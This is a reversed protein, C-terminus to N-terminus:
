SAAQEEREGPGAPEGDPEPEAMKSRRAIMADAQSYAWDAVQEFGEERYLGPDSCMGAMAEGAFYDRLTMGPLYVRVNCGNGAIDMGREIRISPFAPGGNPTTM